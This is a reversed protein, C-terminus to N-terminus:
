LNGYRLAVLTTLHKKEEEIVQEVDPTDDERVQDILEYYFLISDKEAEIAMELATRDDLEGALEAAIDTSTFIRSGTLAKMYTRYEEEESTRMETTDINDLIKQFTLKHKVEESALFDFVKKAQESEANVAMAQYFDIGKKEIEIAMSVIEQASFLPTVMRVEETM